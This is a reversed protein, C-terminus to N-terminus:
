YFPAHVQRTVPTDLSRDESLAFIRKFVTRFLFFSGRAYIYEESVEFVPVFFKFNYILLQFSTQLFFCWACFNWRKELDKKRNFFVDQKVTGDCKEIVSALHFRLSWIDIVDIM